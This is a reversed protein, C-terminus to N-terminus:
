QVQAHRLHYVIPDRVVFLNAASQVATSTNVANALGGEGDENKMEGGLEEDTAACLALVQQVESEEILHHRCGDAARDSSLPCAPLHPATDGDGLLAKLVHTSLCGFCFRHARSCNLTYMGEVAFDEQCILCQQIPDALAYVAAPAPPAAFERSHVLATNDFYYLLAAEASSVRRCLARLADPRVTLVGISVLASRVQEELPTLVPQAAAADATATILDNTITASRRQRLPQVVKGDCSVESPKYFLVIDDRRRVTQASSYIVGEPSYAFSSASHLFFPKRRVRAHLSSCLMMGAGISKAFAGRLLNM